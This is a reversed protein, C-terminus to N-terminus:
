FVVCPIPLVWPMYDPISIVLVICAWAVLLVWYVYEHSLIGADTFIATIIDAILEMNM